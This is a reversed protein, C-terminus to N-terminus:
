FWLISITENNNERHKRLVSLCIMHLPQHWIRNKLQEFTKCKAIQKFKYIRNRM